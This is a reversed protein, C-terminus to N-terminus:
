YALSIKEAINKVIESFHNDATSMFNNTGTINLSAVAVGSKFIPVAICTFGLEDEDKSVCFGKTRIEELTQRLVNPDTITKPTRPELVINNLIFDIETQPLSALLVKGSATSYCKGLYGVYTDAGIPNSSPVKDIFRISYEEDWIALHVDAGTLSYLKELYPHACRIIDMRSLVRNGFYCFKTGLRYQANSNKHVFHRM